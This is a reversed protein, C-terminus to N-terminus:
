SSRRVLGGMLFFFLEGMELVVAEGLKGVSRGEIAGGSYFILRHGPRGVDLVLWGFRM